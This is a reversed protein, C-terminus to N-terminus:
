VNNKMLIVNGPQSIHTEERGELPLIQESLITFYPTFLTRMEDITHYVLTTGIPTKRLKQGPLGYKDSNINFSASLYTGNPKLINKVKKVYKSLDEESLHHILGWELVFDVKICLKELNNVDLNIFSVNVNNEIANRKAYAIAKESFDFGLVNFRRKALYISYFGEGCGIDIAKCPKITETEVLEKLVKPPKEKTWIASNQTEYIKEFTDKNSM